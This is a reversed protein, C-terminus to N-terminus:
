APVGRVRDPVAKLRAAHGVVGPGRVGLRDRDAAVAATEAVVMAAAATEASLMVVAWAVRSPMTAPSTRGAERTAASTRARYQRRRLAAGRQGRCRM